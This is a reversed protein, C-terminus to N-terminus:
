PPQRVPRRSAEDDGERRRRNIAAHFEVQTVACIALRNGVDSLALDKMRGSSREDVYMKVPASTDLHLLAM